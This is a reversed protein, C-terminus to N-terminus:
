FLKPLNKLIADDMKQKNIHVYRMTTTINTHGLALQITEVPVDNLVLTSAFTHRLKHTSITDMRDKPFGALVLARKVKARIAEGSFRGNLQSLKCSKSVFLYEYTNGHKKNRIKIYQDLLMKVESAVPLTRQKNGKGIVTIHTGTYDVLKLSAIEDRRLGTMLLTAVIARDELRTCASVIKKTEDVSLYDVERKEEKLLKIKNLPSKNVYDNDVLWNFIAKLPRIHANISSIKLGDEKLQMMYSRCNSPTIKKVDEITQVHLYDFFREVSIVYSALTNPSKALTLFDFYEKINELYDYKM